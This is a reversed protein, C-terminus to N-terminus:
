AKSKLLRRVWRNLRYVGMGFLVATIFTFSGYVVPVLAMHASGLLVSSVYIALSSNQLGVEISITMRSTPGLRFLIGLLYGGLMGGLNLWLNPLILSVFESAVDNQGKQEFFIIGLFAIALLSPMIYRLPKEAVLAWNKRYRRVTVGILAPVLTMLAVEKVTKLVPLEITVTEGMYRYLALNTILPITVLTIISNVSTLSISLAVNGRLLHNLLGASAGGPCAALIILGVKFEPSLQSADAIWFALLPLLIMQAVLGITIAKPYLFISRFSTLTLSMGVGFMIVVLTFPLFFTSFFSEM